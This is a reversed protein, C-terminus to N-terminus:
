ISRKIKTLAIKEKKTLGEESGGCEMIRDILYDINYDPTPNYIEKIHTPIKPCQLPQINEFYVNKLDECIGNVRFLIIEMNAEDNFIKKNESTNLYVFAAVEYETKLYFWVKYYRSKYYKLLSLDINYKESIAHLQM